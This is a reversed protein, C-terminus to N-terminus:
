YKNSESPSFLRKFPLACFTYIEALEPALVRFNLGKSGSPGQKNVRNIIPIKLVEVNYPAETVCVSILNPIKAGIVICGINM